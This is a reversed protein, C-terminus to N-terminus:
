RLVVGPFAGPRGCQRQQELMADAGLLARDGVLNEAFQEVGGDVVGVELVRGGVFRQPEGRM